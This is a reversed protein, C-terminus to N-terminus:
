VPFMLVTCLIALVVIAVSSSGTSSSARNQKNSSTTYRLGTGRISYTTRGTRTNYTVGNGGLSMSPGNKSLDIRVGPAVKSSKTWSWSM